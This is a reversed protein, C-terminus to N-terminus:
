DVTGYSTPIFILSFNVNIASITSPSDSSGNLYFTHEGATVPFIGQSSMPVIFPESPLGNPIETWRSTPGSIDGSVTSVALTARKTTGAYGFFNANAQGIAFVFGDGPCNIVRSTISAAPSPFFVNTPARYAVGPEDLVEGSTISNAAIKDATVSDPALMANTIGSNAVALAVDGADGGGTLGAGATVSTIDGGSDPVECVVDGADTIERISSGPACTGTVRLQIESQDIQLATVAGDALEIDTISNAGVSAAHLAYPAATLNQRPSLTTFDGGGAPRVRIELWRAQGNFAALSFDLEASFIGEIVDLTIFEPVGVPNGASPADFLEFEFDFSGDAPQGQHVLSGQYTFASGLDVAFASKAAITAGFLISVAMALRLNLKM